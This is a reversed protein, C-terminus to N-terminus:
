AQSGHGPTRAHRLGTERPWGPDRRLKACVRNILIGGCLRDFCVHGQANGDDIQCRARPAGKPVGAL